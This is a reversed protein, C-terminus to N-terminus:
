AVTLEILDRDLVLIRKGFNIVQKILKLTGTIERLYVEAGDIILESNSFTVNRLCIKM